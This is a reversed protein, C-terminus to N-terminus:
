RDRDFRDRDRDRDRGREELQISSIRRDWDRIGGGSVESLDPMDRNIVMSAGRYHVDNYVIVSTRGFVRISAIRNNWAGMRGLNSLDENGTWCQSRGGYNPREYVCVGERPQQSNRDPYRDASPTPTPAPPPPPPPNSPRGIGASETAVRISTIRDSWSKSELRVQGLDPASETFMTTHGRFNTEDWVMVVARGSIRISSTRGSFSQLTAINDGPSYCQEQGQYYIDKYLCVRDGGGRGIQPAANSQPALAIGFM